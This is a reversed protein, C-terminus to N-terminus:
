CGHPNAPSEHNKGMNGGMGCAGTLPGTAEESASDALSRRPSTGTIRQLDDGLAEARALHRNISTKGEGTM